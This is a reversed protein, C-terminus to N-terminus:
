FMLVSIRTLKALFTQNPCLENPWVQNQGFTALTPSLRLERTAVSLRSSAPFTAFDLLVVCQLIVQEHTELPCADSYAQLVCLPTLAALESIARPKSITEHPFLGLPCVCQRQLLWSLRPTQAITTQFPVPVVRACQEDTKPLGQHVVLLQTYHLRHHCSTYPRWLRRMSAPFQGGVRCEWLLVATSITASAGLSSHKCTARKSM